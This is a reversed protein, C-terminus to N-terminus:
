RFPRGTIQTGFKLTQFLVRFPQVGPLNELPSRFDLVFEVLPPDCAARSAARAYAGRRVSWRALTLVPSRSAPRTRWHHPVRARRTPADRPMAPPHSGSWAVTPSKATRVPRGVGVGHGAPPSVPPVPAGKPRPAPTAEVTPSAIFYLLRTGGSAM